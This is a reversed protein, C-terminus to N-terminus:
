REKKGLVTAHCPIIFCYQVCYSLLIITDRLGHQCQQSRDWPGM